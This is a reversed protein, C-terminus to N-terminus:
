EEQKAQENSYNGVNEEGRKRSRRRRTKERGEKLKKDSFHSPLLASDAKVEIDVNVCSTCM